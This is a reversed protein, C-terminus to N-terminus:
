SRTREVKTTEIAEALKKRATFLRSKVTGPPISLAHAIEAIGMGEGYCLAVVAHLEAPLSRIANRLQADEGEHDAEAHSDSALGRPNACAVRRELTRERKWKRICDACKHSVIRYAWARFAAPDDLKRLGRTIAIWAEQVADDAADARGTLRRAHALLRPHWETALQRWASKEGDQCRLVLLELAVQAANRRM